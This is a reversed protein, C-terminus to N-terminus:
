CKAVIVFASGLDVVHPRVTRRGEVGDSPAACTFMVVLDVKAASVYVVSICGHQVKLSGFVSFM